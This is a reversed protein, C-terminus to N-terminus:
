RDERKFRKNFWSWQGPVRRIEREIAATYDAVAESDSKGQLPIEEAVSLEYGGEPSRTLFAPMLAAGSRRALLVPGLPARVNQGFFPVEVSEVDTDM